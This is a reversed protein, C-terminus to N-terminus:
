RRRGQARDPVQHARGREQGQAGSGAFKGMGSLMKPQHAWVEVPEIGSGHAADRGTMKTMGRRMFRYVLKVVPGAESQPVGEIRAM